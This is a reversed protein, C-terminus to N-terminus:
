IPCRPHGFLDSGTNEQCIAEKYDMFRDTDLIRNGKNYGIQAYWNCEQM